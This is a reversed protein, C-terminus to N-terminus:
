KLRLLSEQVWTAVHTGDAAWMRGIGVGRGAHNSLSGMDLLLWEDARAPRHFWAAHDLSAGTVLRERPFGPRMAGHVAGGDTLSALAALHVAPDDGLPERARVWTPHAYEFDDPRGIVRWEFVSITALDQLFSEVRVVEDPGPVDPMPTATWDDGPEAVHFSVTGEFIVNPGQQAQVQRTSFARGDRDRRVTYRVPVGPRGSRIFACHLSHAVRDDGVTRSAALLAQGAVHGGYIRQVGADPGHTPGEFVDEGVAALDLLVSLPEVASVPPPYGRGGVRPIEVGLHKM